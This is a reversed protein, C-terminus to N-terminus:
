VDSHERIILIIKNFASIISRLGLERIYVRLNLVFHSANNPQQGNCSGAFAMGFPVINARSM